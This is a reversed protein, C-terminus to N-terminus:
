DKVGHYYKTIRYHKKGNITLEKYGRQRDEDTTDPHTDYTIWEDIMIKNVKRKDM